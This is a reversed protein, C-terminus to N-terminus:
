PSSTEKPSSAGYSVPIKKANEQLLKCQERVIEHMEGHPFHIATSNKCSEPMNGEFILPKMEWSKREWYHYNRFFFKGELASNQCTIQLNDVKEGPRRIKGRGSLLHGDSFFCLETVVTQGGYGSWVFASFESILIPLSLVTIAMFVILFIVDGRMRRTQSKIKANM